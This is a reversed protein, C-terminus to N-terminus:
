VLWLDRLSAQEETTFLQSAVLDITGNKSM